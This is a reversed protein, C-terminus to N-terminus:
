WQSIAEKKLSMGYKVTWSGTHNHLTKIREQSKGVFDEPM